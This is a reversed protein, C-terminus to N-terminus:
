PWYPCTTSSILTTNIEQDPNPTAMVQLSIMASSMEDKNKSGEIVKWGGQDLFEPKQELAPLHQPLVV